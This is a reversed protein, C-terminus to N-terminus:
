TQVVIFPSVIAPLVSFRPMSPGTSDPVDSEPVDPDPVDPELADDKESSSADDPMVRLQRDCRIVVAPPHAHVAREALM